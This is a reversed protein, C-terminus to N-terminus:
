TTASLHRAGDARKDVSPRWHAVPATSHQILVCDAGPAEVATWLLSFNPHVWVGQLAHKTVYGPVVTAPSSIVEESILM